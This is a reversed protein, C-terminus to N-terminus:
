NFQTCSQIYISGGTNKMCLPMKEIIFEKFTSAVYTNFFYINWKNNYALFARLYYAENWYIGKKLWEAPYEFPFFIDHFHVIVGDSLRPLVEFFLFQLDSGFKMVHTSDIFLLDGTQLTSFINPNVEQVKEELIQINKKDETKLISLLRETNPEILTIEPFRNFHNEFCDLIVASSFGSGVEIIRKPNTHRLFCYLFIADAYCFYEQDYYYRFKSGKNEPFKIDKYFKEFDQLLAFQNNMNVDIDPFQVMKLDFDSYNAIQQLEREPILRFIDESSPIPSYFHGAPFFGAEKIQNRLSRIYPLKDIILAIKSRM